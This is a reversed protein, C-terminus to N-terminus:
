ILGIAKTIADKLTMENKKMYRRLKAYDKKELKVHVMGNAKSLPALPRAM